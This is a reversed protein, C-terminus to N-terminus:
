NLSGSFASIGEEISAEGDPMHTVTILVVRNRVKRVYYDIQIVAGTADDTVDFVMRNYTNGAIERTGDTSLLKFNSSAKQINKSRISM